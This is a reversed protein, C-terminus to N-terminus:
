DATSEAEIVDAEEADIIEANDIDDAESDLIIEEYSGNIDETKALIMSVKRNLIGIGFLVLAIGGYICVPEFIGPLLQAPILQSTVSAADYGSAIYGDVTSKYLLINIVLFIIGVLLVLFAAAGFFNFGKSKKSKVNMLIEGNM